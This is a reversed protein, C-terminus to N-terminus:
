ISGPTGVQSHAISNKMPTKTPVKNPPKKDKIANLLHATNKVWHLFTSYM